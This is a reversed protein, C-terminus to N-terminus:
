KKKVRSAGDNKKMSGNANRSFSMNQKAPVARLNSRSNTGGKSLPKAHDVQKGDGKKVVGEKALESRAANREARKKIQDPRGDYKEYQRKYDRVSKGTKPDTKM